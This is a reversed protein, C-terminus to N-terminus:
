FSSPCLLFKGSICPPCRADITWVDSGRERIRISWRKKGDQWEGGFSFYVEYIKTKDESYIYASTITDPIEDEIWFLGDEEGNLQMTLMTVFMPFFTRAEFVHREGFEVNGVSDNFWRETVKYTFVQFPHELAAASSFSLGAIFDKAEGSLSINDPKEFFANLDVAPNVPVEYSPYHNKVYTELKRPVRAITYGDMKVDHVFREVNREGATKMLKKIVANLDGTPIPKILFGDRDDRNSNSM